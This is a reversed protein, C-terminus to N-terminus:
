HSLYRFEISTLLLAGAFDNNVAIRAVSLLAFDEAKIIDDLDFELVYHNYQFNGPSNQIPINGSNNVIIKAANVVGNDRTFLSSLRIAFRNGTPTNSNDTLLHVFVKAKQYKNRADKPVSFTLPYEDTDGQDLLWGLIRINSNASGLPVTDPVSETGDNMTGANFILSKFEQPEQDLCCYNSM